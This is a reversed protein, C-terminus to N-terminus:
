MWWRLIVKGDPSAGLYPSDLCVVLGSKCVKMKIINESLTNILITQHMLCYKVKFVLVDNNQSILLCDFNSLCSEIDPYGDHKHTKEDVIYIWKRTDGVQEKKKKLPPRSGLFSTRRVKLPIMVCVLWHMTNELLLGHKPRIQVVEIRLWDSVFSFVIHDIPWELKGTNASSVSIYSSAAM